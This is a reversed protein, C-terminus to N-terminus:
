VKLKKTAELLLTQYVQLFYLYPSNCLIEIIIADPLQWPELLDTCIHSYLHLHLSLCFILSRDESSIDAQANILSMHLLYWLRMCQDMYLQSKIVEGKTNPHIKEFMNSVVLIPSGM